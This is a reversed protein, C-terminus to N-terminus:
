AHHLGPACTPLAKLRRYPNIWCSRIAHFNKKKKKKEQKEKKLGRELEGMPPVWLSERVARNGRVKRPAKEAGGAGIKWGLAKQKKRERKM